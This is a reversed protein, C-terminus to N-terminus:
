KTKEKGAEAPESLPEVARMEILLEREYDTRQDKDDWISGPQFIEGTDRDCLTQLVKFKM